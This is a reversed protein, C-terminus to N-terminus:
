QRIRYGVPLLNIGFREEIVGWIGKPLFLAFLVSVAGLAILYWVGSSGLFHEVVFFIVAGIIAGEFTGIGGVLVMFIMYAAWQVNFFSPPQFTITQAVWLAGGMAAALAALVFLIQQTYFVRVGVSAAAGEDDRIAQIGAGIRGRLFLFMVVLLVVMSGFAMWYNAPLRVAPGIDTLQLLSTGTNGNIIPDLTVLLMALEALVWTGIAFQGEKLRLMFTSIPISLVGVGLAGLVLAPYPAIGANALRIAAYAGLGFFGQQGISILGGYGALANWMVAIIVYTFLRTLSILGTPGLFLPGFALAVLLLIFLAVATRSTFTWREVRITGAQAKLDM